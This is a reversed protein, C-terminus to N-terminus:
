GNTSSEVPPPSLQAWARRPSSARTASLSRARRENRRFAGLRISSTVAEERTQNGIRRTWTLRGTCSAIHRMAYIRSAVFSRPECRPTFAKELKGPVSADVNARLRGQMRMEHRM